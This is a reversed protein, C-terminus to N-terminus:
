LGIMVCCVESVAFVHACASICSERVLARCFSLERRVVCSVRRVVSWGRARVHLVCVRVCAARLVCRASRLVCCAVRIM